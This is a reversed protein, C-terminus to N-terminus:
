SASDPESEEQQAELWYIDLVLTVRLPEEVHVGSVIRNKIPTARRAVSQAETGAGTEAQPFSPPQIDDGTKEIELDHVVVYHTDRTLANLVTALVQQRCFFQFTLRERKLGPTFDSADDSAKKDQEDGEDRPPERTVRTRTRSRGGGRRKKLTASTGDFRDRDVVTLRLIGSDFLIRTMAAMLDLQVILRAVDEKNAFESVYHDFGFAFDASVRRKRKDNTGALKRLNSTTQELQGQFGIATTAEREPAIGSVAERLNDRWSAGTNLNTREAAINEESPFPIAAYLAEQRKLKKDRQERTSKQGVFASILWSFAAVFVLITASVGLILPLHRKSM